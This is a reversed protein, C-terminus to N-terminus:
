TGRGAERTRQRPHRRSDCVERVRGGSLRRLLLYDRAQVLLGPWSDAPRVSSGRAAYRWHRGCLSCPSEAFSVREGSAPKSACICTAMASIMCVPLCALRSTAALTASIILVLGRLHVLEPDCLRLLKPLEPLEPLLDARTMALPGPRTGLIIGPSSSGGAASAVASSRARRGAVITLSTSISPRSAATSCSSHKVVCSEM